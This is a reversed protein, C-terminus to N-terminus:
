VSDHYPAACPTPNLVREAAAPAMGVANMIQTLRARSVGLRQAADAYDKLLGSEIAREIFHALALRRAARSAQLAKRNDVKPKPTSVEIEKRGRHRKVVEFKYTVIM